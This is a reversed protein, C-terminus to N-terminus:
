LWLLMVLVFSLAFLIRLSANEPKKLFCSQLFTAYARMKEAKKGFRSLVSSRNESEFLPLSAPEAPKCRRAKKGFGIRGYAAHWCIRM